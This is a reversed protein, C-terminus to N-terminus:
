RMASMSKWGVKLMKTSVPGMESHKSWDLLKGSYLVSATSTVLFCCHRQFNVRSKLGTWVLLMDFCCTSRQKSMDFTAARCTAEVRRQHPRPKVTPRNNDHRTHNVSVVVINAIHRRYGVLVHVRHEIFLRQYTANIPVSLLM